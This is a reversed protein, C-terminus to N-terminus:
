PRGFMSSSLITFPLQALLFVLYPGAALFALNNLFFPNVSESSWKQGEVNFPKMNGNMEWVNSTFVNHLRKQANIIVLTVGHSTKFQNSKPM